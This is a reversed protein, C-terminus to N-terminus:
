NYFLVYLFVRIDRIVFTYPKLPWLSAMSSYTKHYANFSERTLYKQAEEHTHSYLYDNMIHFQSSLLQRHSSECLRKSREEIDDQTISRKLRSKGAKQVRKEKEERKHTKDNNISVKTTKKKDNATNKTLLFKLQHRDKISFSSM